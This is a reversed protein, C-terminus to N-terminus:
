SQLKMLLFIMKLFTQDTQLNNSHESIFTYVIKFNTGSYNRTYHYATHIPRKLICRVSTKPIGSYSEIQRTSLHPNNAAADLVVVEAAGDM